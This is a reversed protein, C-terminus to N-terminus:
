KLQKIFEYLLLIGYSNPKSNTFTVNGLDIHIWPINNNVFYSIFTGALICDALKNNINKVDAVDSKIYNYYEERIKLYDVYEGIEDGIKMLLNSYEFGKNNSTIVSSISSTIQHANGTLTAIDLLLTNNINNKKIYMNIYDIGDIICLRGEADTNIIEITKNSMSKIVMGPRIATNNIMNEVISIIININNNKINNKNLLSLVSILIASGTMDIKMDSMNSRKLNIGGSDFTVGKGILFLSKKLKNIKKPLIHIFYSNYKSGSGVAKSLPFLNTNNIKKIKIKYNNFSKIRSKIYKLYTDPNKNPDNVINKYFNLENILFKNNINIINISKKYSYFINHLKSIIINILINNFTKDFIIDINKINYVYLINDIKKIINNLLNINNNIIYVNLIIKNNLEKIEINNNIILQKNISNYIYINIYSM